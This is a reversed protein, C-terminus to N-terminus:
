SKHGASKKRSSKKVSMVIGAILELVALGLVILGISPLSLIGLLAHFLVAVYLGIPRKLYISLIAYLLVVVVLCVVLWSMWSGM